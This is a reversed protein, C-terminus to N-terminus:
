SNGLLKMMENGRNGQLLLLALQQGLSSDFLIHTLPISPQSGLFVSLSLVLGAPATIHQSM